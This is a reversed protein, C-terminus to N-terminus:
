RYTVPVSCAEIWVRASHTTTMDSVVSILAWLAAGILVFYKGGSKVRLERKAFSQGM